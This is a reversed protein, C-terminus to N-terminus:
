TGGAAKITADAHLPKTYKQYDYDTTYWVPTDVHSKGIFCPRM